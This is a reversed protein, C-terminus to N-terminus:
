IPEGLPRKAKEDAQRTPPFALDWSQPSCQSSVRYATVALTEKRHDAAHVADLQVARAGIAVLGASLRSLRGIRRCVQYSEIDSAGSVETTVTSSLLNRTGCVHARPEARRQWQCRTPVDTNM